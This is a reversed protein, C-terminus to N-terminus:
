NMRVFFNLKLYLGGTNLPQGNDDLGGWVVLHPGTFALAGNERAQPAGGTPLPSWVDAVPDYRGGTDLLGGFERGGWVLVYAGTWAMGHGILAAPADVTSMAEWSDGAPDYKGGSLAGAIGAWIVM